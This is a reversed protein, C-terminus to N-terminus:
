IEGQAYIFRFISVNASHYFAVVAGKRVPIIVHIDNASPAWCNSAYDLSTGDALTCVMALEQWTGSSTGKAYYYGDAPATYTAGSAGVSLDTYSVSPMAYSTITEKGTATFNDADTNAKGSIDPTGAIFNNGQRISM